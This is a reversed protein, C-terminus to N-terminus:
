VTAGPQAIRGPVPRGSRRPRGIMSEHRPPQNPGGAVTMRALGPPTGGATVRARASPLSRDDGSARIANCEIVWAGIAAADTSDAIFDAVERPVLHRPLMLLGDPGVSIQWTGHSVLHWQGTPSGVEGVTQITTGESLEPMPPLEAPQPTETEPEEPVVEPEPTESM